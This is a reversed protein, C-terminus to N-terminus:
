KGHSSDMTTCLRDMELGRWDFDFKWDSTFEPQIDAGITSAILQRRDARRRLNVVIVKVDTM